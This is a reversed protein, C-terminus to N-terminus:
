ESVAENTLEFCVVGFGSFLGYLNMKVLGDAEKKEVGVALGATGNPNTTAYDGDFPITVTFPISFDDVNRIDVLSIYYKLGSGKGTTHHLVALYERDNFKMKQIDSVVNGWGNKFAADDEPTGLLPGRIVTGGAGEAKMYQVTSETSANGPGGFYYPTVTNTSAPILKQYFTTVNFGTTHATPTANVKGGAVAWAYHTSKTVGNNNKTDLATIYGNGNIDGIAVLKRGMGVAINADEYDLILTPAKDVDTWKYVRFHPNSWAGLTCGILNGKDDNAVIFPINTAANAPNGVIGDMNLRKPNNEADKEVVGTTVNMIIGSRGLIVKDGLTALAAEFEATAGAEKTTLWLKSHKGIGLTYKERKLKVTWKKIDGNQATVTYEVDKSFDQATNQAPSVTAGVSIDFSPAVNKLQNADYDFAVLLEITTTGSAIVGEINLSPIKFNSIDNGTRKEPENDDDSSCSVSSFIMSFALLCGIFRLYKKMTKM